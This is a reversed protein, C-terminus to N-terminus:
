AGHPLPQRAWITKGRDHYRTGWLDALQAIMYLGRGGEDTEAAHRVHPSTSSGDAVECTLGEDRILRLQIPPKGYRLANTVLESVILQTGFELDALGWAHLQETVLTRARGAERSDSAM